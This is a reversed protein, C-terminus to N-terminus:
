DSVYDTWLGEETVPSSAVKSSEISLINVIRVQLQSQQTSLTGPKRKVPCVNTFKTWTQQRNPKATAIVGLAM